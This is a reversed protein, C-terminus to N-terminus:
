YYESECATFIVDEDSDIATLFVLDNVLLCNVEEILKQGYDREIITISFSLNM